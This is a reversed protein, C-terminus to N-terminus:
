GKEIGVVAKEARQAAGAGSISPTGSRYGMDCVVEDSAAIGSSV